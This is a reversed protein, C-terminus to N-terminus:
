IIVPVAVVLRAGDRVLTAEMRLTTPEEFWGFVQLEYGADTWRVLADRVYSEALALTEPTQGRGKLTWLLSGFPRDELYGEGWWGSQDSADRAQDQTARRETGLAILVATQESSDLALHETDENIALDYIDHGGRTLLIQRM